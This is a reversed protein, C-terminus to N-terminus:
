TGSRDFVRLDMRDTPAFVIHDNWATLAYGQLFPLRMVEVRDESAEVYVEDGPQPPLESLVEGDQDLLVASTPHRRLGTSPAEAFIDQHSIFSTGDSFAAHWQILGSFESQAVQVQRGFGGGPDLVSLRRLQSDWVALSDGPWPSLRFPNRFEGPGDGEGGWTALHQGQEDYLMIQASGGNVVALRGDSLFRADFARFLQYAEEANLGGIDVRPEASVAWAMRAEPAPDSNQVITVGASDTLTSTPASQAGDGCATVLCAGVLLFLAPTPLRISLTM